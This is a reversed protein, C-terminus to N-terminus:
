LIIMNFELTRTKHNDPNDPTSVHLEPWMKPDSSLNCQGHRAGSDPDPHPQCDKLFLFQVILIKELLICYM